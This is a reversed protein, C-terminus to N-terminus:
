KMFILFLIAASTKAEQQAQAGRSSMSPVRGGAGTVGKPLLKGGAPAISKPSQRPPDALAIACRNEEEM